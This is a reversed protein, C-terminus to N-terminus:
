SNIIPSDKSMLLFGDEHLHKIDNLSLDGVGTEYIQSYIESFNFDASNNNIFWEFEHISLILLESYHSIIEPYKSVIIYKYNDGIDYDKSKCKVHNHRILVKKEWENKLYELHNKVAELDKFYVNLPLAHNKAEILLYKESNNKLILDIDGINRKGEFLDTGRSVEVFGAKEAIRVISDLFKDSYRKKYEEKIKGSAELLTYHINIFLSDLILEPSVLIIGQGINIFPCRSLLYYRLERENFEETKFTMRHIVDLTDKGFRTKLDAEKFLFVESFNNFAQYTLVDIKGNEMRPLKNEVSKMKARITDFLFILLKIFKKLSIKFEEKFLDEYDRYENYFNNIFETHLKKSNKKLFNDRDIRVFYDFFQKVEPNTKVESMDIKVYRDRDGHVSVEFLNVFSYTEYKSNLINANKFLYDTLRQNFVIYEGYQQLENRRYKINLQILYKLSEEGMSTVAKISNENVGEPIIDLNSRVVRNLHLLYLWWLLESITSGKSADILKDIDRDIETDLKKLAREKQSSEM